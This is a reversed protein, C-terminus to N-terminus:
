KKLKIIEKKLKNILKSNKKLQAVELDGKLSVFKLYDKRRSKDGKLRSEFVKLDKDFSDVSKIPAKSSPKKVVAKNSKNKSSVNNILKKDTSKNKKNSAKKNTSSKKNNIIKKTSSKVNTIKKNPTSKNTAVKKNDKIKKNNTINKNNTLKKNILKKSSKSKIVKKLVVGKKSKSSDKSVGDNVENGDENADDGDVVGVDDDEGDNQSDVVVKNKGKDKKRIKDYEEKALRVDEDIEKQSVLEKVYPKPSKKLSRWMSDFRSKLTELYIEAINFEGSKVKDLALKLELEVDFTDVGLDKLQSIQYVYEDLVGNFKNYEELESDSLRSPSHLLPRFSVIYPQGKNYASNQLMGTGVSAKVVSHLIEEGYKTKLRELDLEDRTRMQVETNINAKIQGIFDSLTQSVLMIGIGWKRFERCAREIQMLGIGNGGFKPLLRHVEDYVLLIKMEREEDFNDKFVQRVTNAVFLDMDKFDLKNLLFVNVEGPKVINKIKIKERPNSVLHVNGNFARAEKRKMSFSDFHKLMQKVVLM